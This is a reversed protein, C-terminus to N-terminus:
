KSESEENISISLIDGHEDTEVEAGIERLSEILEEKGKRGFNRTGNILGRETFSIIDDIDNLGAMHLANYTRVSINLEQLKIDKISRKEVKEEVKKSNRLISEYYMKSRETHIGKCSLRRDMEDICKPGFGELEKFDSGSALFEVIDRLTNIGNEKLIRHAMVGFPMDELKIGEINIGQVEFKVDYGLDRAAYYVSENDTVYGDEIGNKILESRSPHRLKRLTRECVLRVANSGIGYRKGISEYTENSAMRDKFIALDREANASKNSKTTEIAVLTGAINKESLSIKDIHVYLTFSATKTAIVKDRESFKM